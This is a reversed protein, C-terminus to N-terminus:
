RVNALGVVTIGIGRCDTQMAAKLEAETADIESGSFGLAAVDDYHIEGALMVNGLVEANDGGSDDLTLSDSGDQYYVFGKITDTGNTGDGDLPVWLNTSTNYAVPHGVSLTKGGSIADFKKVKVISPVIRPKDGTTGSSFLNRKETAM